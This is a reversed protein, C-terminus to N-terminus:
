RTERKMMMDNVESIRKMSDKVKNIMTKNGLANSAPTMKKVKIMNMGQPSKLFNDIEELAKEAGESSQFRDIPQLALLDVGTKCWKNVQVYFTASKKLRESNVLHWLWFKLLLDISLKNRVLFVFLCFKLWPQPRQHEPCRFDLTGLMHFIRTLQTFDSLQLLKMIKFASM